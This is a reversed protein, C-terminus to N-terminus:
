HVTIEHCVATNMFRILAMVTTIVGAHLSLKLPLCTKEHKARKMNLTSTDQLHSNQTNYEPVRSVKAAPKCTM